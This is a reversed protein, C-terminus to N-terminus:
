DKAKTDTFTLTVTTGAPVQTDAPIDQATVIVCDKTEPNGELLLYLGLTEACAQAQQRTMGSFDPISVLEEAPTEGLYLLVQSGGPIQQGPAPIQGTVLEGEGSFKASLGAQKLM